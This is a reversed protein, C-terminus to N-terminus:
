YKVEPGLKPPPFPPPSNFTIFARAVKRSGQIKAWVFFDVASFDGAFKKKQGGRSFELGVWVFCACSRM